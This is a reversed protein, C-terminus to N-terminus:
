ICLYSPAMIDVSHRPFFHLQWLSFAVGVDLSRAISDKTRSASDRRSALIEVGVDNQSSNKLLTWIDYILLGGSKALYLTLFLM